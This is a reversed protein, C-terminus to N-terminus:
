TTKPEKGMCRAISPLTEGQIPGSTFLILDSFYVYNLFKQENGYAVKEGDVMINGQPDEPVIRFARIPMWQVFDYDFHKGDALKTFTKALNMRTAGDSRIFQLTLYGDSLTSTATAVVDKSISAKSTIM